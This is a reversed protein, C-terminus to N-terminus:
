LHVSTMVRGSCLSLSSHQKALELAMRSEHLSGGTVIMAEVRAKKSRQFMADFDDSIKKKAADSICLSLTHGQHLQKGRYRGRFVPDTLNVTQGRDSNLGPM